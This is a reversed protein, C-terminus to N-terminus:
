PDCARISARTATPKSRLWISHVLLGDWEVAVLAILARLPGVDDDAALMDALGGIVDAPFSQRVARVAGPDALVVAPM